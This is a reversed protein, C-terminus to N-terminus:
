QNNTTSKHFNPCLRHFFKKALKFSLKCITILAIGCFFLSIVLLTVRISAHILTNILEIINITLCKNSVPTLAIQGLTKYILNSFLKQFQKKEFLSRIVMMYLTYGAKLVTKAISKENIYKRINKEDVVKFNKYKISSQTRVLAYFKINNKWAILQNVRSVITTIKMKNLTDPMSFYYKEIKLNFETYELCIKKVKCFQFLESTKFEDKGEYSLLVVLTSAKCFEEEKIANLRDIGHKTPLVKEQSKKNASTLIAMIGHVKQFIYKETEFELVHAKNTEKVSASNAIKTFRSKLQIAAKIIQRSADMMKDLILDLNSMKSM